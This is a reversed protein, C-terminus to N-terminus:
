KGYAKKFDAELADLAKQADMKGVVIKQIAKVCLQESFAKGALDDKPAPYYNHVIVKSNDLWGKNLPDKWFASDEVGVIVPQWMGGMAEVMKAYSNTDSFYYEIFKKANDAGKGDKFVAFVNGGGPVYARGSPGKPYGIVKTKKLLDQNEKQMASWVSGSNFICGVTGALYAKNNGMDDWTMADPPCLNEQYVSAVFKLAALTEKSNVTVNGDKDVPAGGFSLIVSRMFGEADGGGSAGMPFGLAYFGNKPDNIKKAHEKLEDWTAPMQLGKGEWKDARVYFGPGLFSLPVMMDKNKLQGLLKAADTLKLKSNVDSVEAIQDMAVFQGALFDDTVILDPVNKAEIAAMLKPKLDNPPMIVYEAEINNAKSFEDVKTKMLDNYAKVYESKDWYVFKGKAKPAQTQQAQTTEPAKAASGTESKKGGSSCAALQTILIGAMLLSLAKKM